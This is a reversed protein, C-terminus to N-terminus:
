RRFEDRFCLNLFQLAFDILQDSPMLIINIFYFSDLIQEIIDLHFFDQFAQM